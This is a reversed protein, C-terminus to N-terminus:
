LPSRSGLCSRPTHSAELGMSKNQQLMLSYLRILANRNCTPTGYTSHQYVPRYRMPFLTQEKHGEHDIQQTQLGRVDKIAQLLPGGVEHVQRSAAELEELFRM